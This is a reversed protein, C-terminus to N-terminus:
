GKPLFISLGRLEWRPRCEMTEDEMQRCLRWVKTGVPCAELRMTGLSLEQREVLHCHSLLVNQVKRWPHKIIKFLKLVLSAGLSVM